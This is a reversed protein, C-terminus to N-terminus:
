EEDSQYAGSAALAIKKAELNAAFGIKHSGIDRMLRMRFEKEILVLLDLYLWIPDKQKFRKL